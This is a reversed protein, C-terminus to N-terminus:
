RPRVWRTHQTLCFQTMSTMRSGLRTVTNRGTGLLRPINRGSEGQAHIARGDEQTSMPMTMRENREPPTEHFPGPQCSRVDNATGPNNRALM